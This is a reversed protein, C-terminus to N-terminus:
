KPLAVDFQATVGTLVAQAATLKVVVVAKDSNYPILLQEVQAQRAQKQAIVGNTDAIQNNLSDRRATQNVILAQRSSVGNNFANLESHRASLASQTQDVTSKLGDYGVSVNYANYASTSGNLSSNANALENVAGPQAAQNASLDNQTNPLDSQAIQSLRQNIQDLQSALVSVRDRATADWQDLQQKRNWVQQQIWQGIQQQQQELQQQEGQAQQLAARTGNLQADAQNLDNQLPSCNPGQPPAPPQPGPATPQPSPPQPVPPQPQPEPQAPGGPGGGDGPGHHGGGGPFGGMGGRGGGMGGPGFPSPGDFQNALATVGLANTVIGAVRMSGGQAMCQTVANAKVDRVGQQYNVQQSYADVQGRLQQQQGEIQRLQQNQEMMRRIEWQPNYQQVAQDANQMEAYAGSYDSQTQALSRQLQSRENQLQAIRNQDNAISSNISALNDQANSLRTQDNRMIDRLRNHEPTFPALAVTAADFAAQAAAVEATKAAIKINLDAIENNARDIQMQANDRNGTLGVLKINILQNLDAKLTGLERTLDAYHAELTALEVKVALVGRYAEVGTKVLDRLIASQAATVKEIKVKTVSTPLFAKEFDSTAFIAKSGVCNNALAAIAASSGSMSFPAEGQGGGIQYASFQNVNKMEGVIADTNRPIGWFVDRGDPTRLKSFFYQKTDGVVMQMSQISSKGSNPMVLVELPRAGSKDLVINLSYVADNLYTATSAICTGSNRDGPNSDNVVWDGPAAITKALAPAAILLALAAAIKASQLSRLFLSV